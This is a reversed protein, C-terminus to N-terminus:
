QSCTIFPVRSVCNIDEQQSQICLQLFLHSLFWCHCCVHISQQLGGVDVINSENGGHRM